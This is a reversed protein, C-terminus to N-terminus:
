RTQAPGKYKETQDSSTLILLAFNISWLGSMLSGHNLKQSWLCPQFLLLSDLILRLIAHSSSVCKLQALLIVTFYQLQIINQNAFDLQTARKKTDLPPFM